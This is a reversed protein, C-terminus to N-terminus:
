AFAAAIDDLAMPDALPDARLASIKENQLPSDPSEHNYNRKGGGHGGRKLFRTPAECSNSWNGGKGSPLIHVGNRKYAFGYAKLSERTAKNHDGSLDASIWLWSRELEAVLHLQPHNEHLWQLVETQSHTQHKM